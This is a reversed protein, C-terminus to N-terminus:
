ESAPYLSRQVAQGGWPPGDVKDFLHRFGQVINRRREGTRGQWESQALASQLRAACSGLIALSEHVLRKRGHLLAVCYLYDTRVIEQAVRINALDDMVAARQVTVGVM